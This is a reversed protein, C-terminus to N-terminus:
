KGALLESQSLRAGRHTRDLDEHRGEQVLEDRKLAALFYVGRYTSEILNVLGRPLTGETAGTDDLAVALAANRVFEGPSDNRTSAAEEVAKWESKSFRISHNTRADVFQRNASGDTGDSIPKNSTM